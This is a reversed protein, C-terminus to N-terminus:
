SLQNRHIQNFPLPLLRMERSQVEKKTRSRCRGMLDWAVIGRQGTKPGKKKEWIRSAKIEMLTPKRRNEAIKNM